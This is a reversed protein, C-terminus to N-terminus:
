KSKVEQERTDVNFALLMFDAACKNAKETSVGEDLLLRAINYHWSRAYGPDNKMAVSLHSMSAATKTITELTADGITAEGVAREARTLAVQAKTLLPTSARFGGNFDGRLERFCQLAVNYVEIAASHCDFRKM